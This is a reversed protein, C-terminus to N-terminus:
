LSGNKIRNEIKAYIYTYLVKLNNNKRRKFDKAVGNIKM